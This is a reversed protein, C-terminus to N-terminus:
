KTLFTNCNLRVTSVFMKGRDEKMSIMIWLWCCAGLFKAIYHDTSAATNEEEDVNWENKKRQNDAARVTPPPAHGGMNSVIAAGYRSHLAPRKLLNLVRRAIM